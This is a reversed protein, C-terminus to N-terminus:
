KFSKAFSKILWACAADLKAMWRAGRREHKSVSKAVGKRKLKERKESMEWGEGEM